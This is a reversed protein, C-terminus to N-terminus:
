RGELQEAQAAAQSPNFGRGLVRELHEQQDQSQGSLIIDRIEEPSKGSAILDALHIGREILQEDMGAFVADGMLPPVEGPATHVSPLRVNKEECFQDLAAIAEPTPRHKTSNTAEEVLRGLRETDAASLIVRTRTKERIIGNRDPVSVTTEEVLRGRQDVGQRFKVDGPAVPLMGERWQNTQNLAIEEALKLAPELARDVTDGVLKHLSHISEDYDPHTPPVMKIGNRREQLEEKLADDAADMARSFDRDIEALLRENDTTAM